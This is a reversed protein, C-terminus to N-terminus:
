KPSGLRRLPLLVGMVTKPVAQRGGSPSPPQGTRQFYFCEQVIAPGTKM